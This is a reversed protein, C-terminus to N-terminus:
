YYASTFILQQTRKATNHRTLLTCAFSRKQHSIRRSAPIGPYYASLRKGDWKPTGATNEPSFEWPGVRILTQLSMQRHWIVASQHHLHGAAYSPIPLRFTFTVLRGDSSRCPGIGRHHYSTTPQATDPLSLRTDGKVTHSIITEETSSCFAFSTSYVFQPFRFSLPM